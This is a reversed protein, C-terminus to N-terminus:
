PLQGAAMMRAYLLSSSIWIFEDDFESGQQEALPVKFFFRDAALGLEGTSCDGSVEESAEGANENEIESLNRNHRALSFALAVIKDAALSAAPTSENCAISADGCIRLDAEVHSLGAALNQEIRIDGPTVFDASGNSTDHSSVSYRYPQGWPDLMLGNCDVQAKLGLSQYPVFGHYADAGSRSCEGNSALAQGGMNAFAPCPLAGHTMAYGYLAQEIELLEARAKRLRSMEQQASMPTITMGLLTSFIALVVVMELM